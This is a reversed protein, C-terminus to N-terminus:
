VKLRGLRSLNRYGKVGNVGMERMKRLMIDPDCGFTDIFEAKSMMSGQATIYITKGSPDTQKGSPLKWEFGTPPICGLPALSTGDGEPVKNVAGCSKGAPSTTDIWLIPPFSDPLEKWTGALGFMTVTTTLNNTTSEYYQAFAM